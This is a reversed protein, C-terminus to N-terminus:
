GQQEYAHPGFASFWRTERPNPCDFIFWVINYMSKRMNALPLPYVELRPHFLSQTFAAIRIRATLVLGVGPGM